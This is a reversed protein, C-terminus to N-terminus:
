CKQYDIIKKLGEWDDKPVPVVSRGRPFSLYDDIFKFRGEKLKDLSIPNRFNIESIDIHNSHGDNENKHYYTRKCRCCGVIERDFGHYCLIFDEKEVKKLNDIDRSKDPIGWPNWGDSTIKKLDSGDPNVIFIGQSMPGYSLFLIRQGDPSWSPYTETTDPITGVASSIPIIFSFSVFLILIKKYPTM